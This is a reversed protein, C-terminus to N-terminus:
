NLMIKGISLEVKSFLEICIHTQFDFIDPLKYIYECIKTNTICLGFIHYLYELFKKKSHKYRYIYLIIKKFTMYEIHQGNYHGNNHM